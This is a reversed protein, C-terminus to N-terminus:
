YYRQSEPYKGLDYLVNALEFAATVNSRDLLHARRFADEAAELKNLEMRVLGLSIYASDRREYLLDETVKVLTKEADEFRGQSFLFLGYNFRIRTEEPRLRLAARFEEDALELEGTNQFVLALA